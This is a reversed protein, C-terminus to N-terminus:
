MQWIGIDHWIMEIYRPYCNVVLPKAGSIFDHGRLASSLVYFNLQMCAFGGKGNLAEGVERLTEKETEQGGAQWMKQFAEYDFDQLGGPCETLAGRLCRGTEGMPSAGFVEQLWATIASKSPCPHACLFRRLARQEEAALEQLRDPPPAKATPRHSEGADRDQGSSATEASDDSDSVVFKDWKSYDVPM